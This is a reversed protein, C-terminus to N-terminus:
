CQVVFLYLLSASVSDEHMGYARLGMPEPITTMIVEPGM